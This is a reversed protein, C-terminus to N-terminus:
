DEKRKIYDNPMDNQKILTHSFTGGMTVGIFTKNNTININHKSNFKFIDWHSVKIIHEGSSLEVEMYEKPEITNYDKGDINIYFDLGFLKNIGGVMNYIKVSSKESSNLDLPAIFNQKPKEGKSIKRSIINEQSDEIWVSQYNNSLYGKIFYNKNKELTINIDGKINNSDGGISSIIAPYYTTARISLTSVEAPVNRELTIPNMRLGQGYNVSRTKTSSSDIKNGNIRYLEFFSAQSSNVIKSSDHITAINGSYNKPLPKQIGNCGNIFLLLSILLIKKM